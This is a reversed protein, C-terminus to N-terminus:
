EFFNPLRLEGSALRESLDDVRAQLDDPVVDGVQTIPSLVIGRNGLALVDFRRGFSDARIQELYGQYTPLLDLKATTINNAKIEGSAADSVGITPVDAAAAAQGLGRGDDTAILLQAGKDILGRAAEQEKQLDYFRGTYSEDYTARPNAAELGARIGKHTALVFPLQPGGVAGVSDIGRLSGAVFGDLYGLQGFDYTWGDVNAPLKRALTADGSASFHVDPFQPAVRLIPESVDIGHGIVLDYGRAAFQRIVPEAQTPDALGQRIQVDAGDARLQEAAEASWANFAGDNTQGSTIIAVKLQQEDGRGGSAATAEGGNDSSGCASLLLAAILLGALALLPTKHLRKV